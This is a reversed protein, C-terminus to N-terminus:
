LQEHSCLILLFSPLFNANEYNSIRWPIKGQWLSGFIQHTSDQFEIFLSDQESESHVSFTKNQFDSKDIISEPNKRWEANAKNIEEAFREIREEQKRFEESLKDPAVCAARSVLKKHNIIEHGLRCINEYNRVISIFRTMKIVYKKRKLYTILNENQM